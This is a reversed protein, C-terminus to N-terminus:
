TLHIMLCFHTLLFHPRHGSLITGTRTYQIDLTQSKIGKTCGVSQFPYITYIEKKHM